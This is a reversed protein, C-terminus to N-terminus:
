SSLPANTGTGFQITLDDGSLTRNEGIDWIVRTNNATLDSRYLHIYRFTLATGSGLNTWSPNTFTRRSASGDINVAVNTLTEGGSTYNGGTAENTSSFVSVNTATPNWAAQMLAVKLVAGTGQFLSQMASHKMAVPIVNPM